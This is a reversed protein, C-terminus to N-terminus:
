VPHLESHLWGRGASSRSISLEAKECREQFVTPPVRRSAASTPPWGRGQVRDSCLTATPAQRTYLAQLNDLGESLGLLSGATSSSWVRDPLWHDPAAFAAGRKAAPARIRPSSKEHDRRALHPGHHGGLAIEGVELEFPKSLLQVREGLDQEVEVGASDARLRSSGRGFEHGPRRAGVAWRGIAARGHDLAWPTSEGIQPISQAPVLPCMPPQPEIALLFSRPPQSPSPDRLGPRTPRSKSSGRLVGRGHFNTARSGSAARDLLIM